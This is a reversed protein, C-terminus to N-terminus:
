IKDELSHSMVFATAFFYQTLMHIKFRNWPKNKEQKFTKTNAPVFSSGKTFVTLEDETLTYSSLDHTM